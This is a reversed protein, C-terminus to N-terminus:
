ADLFGRKAPDLPNNVITSSQVGASDFKRSALQHPTLSLRRRTKEQLAPPLILSGERRGLDKAENPNRNGPGQLLQAPQACRCMKRNRPEAVM